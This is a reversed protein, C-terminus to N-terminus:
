SNTFKEVQVMITHQPNGKALPTWRESTLTNICGGRDYGNSDPKYWAGQPINVVGPMIKRTVRCPLLIVGRDNWVKVM